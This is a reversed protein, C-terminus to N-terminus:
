GANRSVRRVEQRQLESLIRTLQGLKQRGELDTAMENFRIGASIEGAPQPGSPPRMRGELLLTAEGRQLEIRLRDETSIKPPQGNTGRILVGMGGLSLDKLEIAVQQSPMPRENINVRPAVRWIKGQLEFDEFVKVRYNNRRQVAKVEQPRAILLAAVTTLDNIAHNAEYQLAVATFAVKDHARKFSVGVNAGTSILEGILAHEAAEAEVWVANPADGIFRSKYHRLMGASPLSLVIACNRAIAENLINGPTDSM